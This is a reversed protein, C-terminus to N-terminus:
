IAELKLTGQESVLYASGALMKVAEGVPNRERSGSPEQWCSAPFWWYGSM